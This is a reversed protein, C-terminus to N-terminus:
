PAPSTVTLTFSCRGGSVTYTYEGLALTTDLVVVSPGTVNGGSSLSLTLSSCRSFSLEAHATGRGLSLNFTRSPNKPNLSGSFTVTQTPQTPAPAAPAAAVTATAVSVATSDGDASSATVAV